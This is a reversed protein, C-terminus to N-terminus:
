PRAVSHTPTPWPWAASNSLGPHAGLRGLDPDHARPRRPQRQGLEQLSPPDFRDHELAAAALVALPTDPRAHELLARDVQQARDAGALPHVALADDVVAHRELEVALTVADREGLQGAARRDHDVTLGLHHLVQDADPEIRAVRQAKLGVVHREGFDVAVARADGVAVLAAPALQAAVEDGAAVAEVADRTLGDRGADYPHALAVVREAPQPDQGVHGRRAVLEDV